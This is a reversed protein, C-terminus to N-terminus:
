LAKYEDVTHNCLYDDIGKDPGQPLEVIFVKAGRDILRYALEYVAQRLNKPEGHRDPNLWDNDPVLYVTRGKFNIRDFDLILNKEPTADSWNWLGGTGFCFLGEQTAKLVKKEGETFYLPVSADQLVAEVRPPIYLRCPSGSKQYYKVTGKETQQPPFLKYREYGDPYPFALLSAVKPFHGEIRQSIM